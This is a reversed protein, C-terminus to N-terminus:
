RSLSRRRKGVDKRQVQGEESSAVEIRSHPFYKRGASIWQEPTRGGVAPVMRLNTKGLPRERGSCNRKKTRDNCQFVSPLIGMTDRIFMAINRQDSFDPFMKCEGGWIENPLKRSAKKAAAFSYSATRTM